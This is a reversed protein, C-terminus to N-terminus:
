MYEATDFVLKGGASSVDVAEKSGVSYAIHDIRM